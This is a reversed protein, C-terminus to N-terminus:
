LDSYYDGPDVHEERHEIICDLEGCVKDECEACTQTDESVEDCISCKYLVCCNPCTFDFIQKTDNENSVYFEQILWEEENEELEELSMVHVHKEKKCSWCEIIYGTAYGSIVEVIHCLSSHDVDLGYFFRMYIDHIMSNQNYVCQKRRRVGISIQHIRSEIENLTHLNNNTWTVGECLPDLLASVNYHCLLHYFMASASAEDESDKNSDESNDVNMHEDKEEKESNLKRKKPPRQQSENDLKRKKSSM